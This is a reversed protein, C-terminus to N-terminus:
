SIKTESRPKLFIHTHTHISEQCKYSHAFYIRFFFYLFYFISAFHWRDANRKSSTASFCVTNDRMQIKRTHQLPQPLLTFNFLRTKEVPSAIPGRLDCYYFSRKRNDNPQSLYGTDCMYTAAFYRLM